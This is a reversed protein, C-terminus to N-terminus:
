LGYKELMNYHKGTPTKAIESPPISPRNWGLYGDPNEWLELMDDMFEELGQEPSVAMSEKFHAVAMSLADLRDDHALAHAQRHIRTMQYVFSFRQEKEYVRYDDKIVSTDVILKHQMLVPELTDIIRAEKQTTSRVEEVTCPYMRMLVPKLLETYMGDGFNSEVIITSVGHYKAKVALATLVGESYGGEFGGLEVLFLYGNLYKLVAYATEDKGRGSPDIAMVCAKYPLTEESRSLPAYYYDGKLATCPIDILRQQQGTAWAWKISAEKPDLDAIILDQVKLPYKEADSLSTNLLFQLAYGARGYSLRRSDIEEQDFRQPDTPLGAYRDFDTDSREKLLPALRDGYQELLTRSAPYEVPYIITSYGRKQLEEYLSMECQPTGLYIIRGKPKLIADFEKVAESLRDRQVQTASNSPIEVDDAILLDARSGTIQGYIGVSKVSPSADPKCGNVDFLNMTDRHGKASDPQMDHLFSIVQMIRKIFVANADARDKSASIIEVKINRDKWLSWVCFACTIFSKAVGRFGELIMRNSPFTQLNKAIDLQIETPEPLGIEKWVIWLFVRFDDKARKIQEKTYHSNYNTEARLM